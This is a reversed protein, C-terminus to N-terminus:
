AAGGPVPDGATRHAGGRLAGQGGGRPSRCPMGERPSAGGSSRREQYIAKARELFEQEEATLPIPFPRQQEFPLSHYNAWSRQLGAAIEPDGGTFEEILALAEAALAQAEPSGPDDGQAVLCKVGAYLARYREDIRRQDEETGPGRAEESYSKRSLEEM